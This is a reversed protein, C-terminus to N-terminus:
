KHVLGEFFEYIRVQLIRKDEIINDKMFRKIHDLNIKNIFEKKVKIELDIEKIFDDFGFKPNNLIKYIYEKTTHVFVDQRKKDNSYIENAINKLEKFDCEKLSDVSAAMMLAFIKARFELSRHHYLFIERFSSILWTKISM